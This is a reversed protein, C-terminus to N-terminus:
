NESSGYRPKVFVFLARPYMEVAAVHYGFLVLGWDGNELALSVRDGDYKAIPEM